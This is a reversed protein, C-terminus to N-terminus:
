YNFTVLLQAGRGSLPNIQDTSSNPFPTIGMQGGEDNWFANVFFQWRDYSRGWRIFRSTSKSDWERTLILSFQDFLGYSYNALVASIPVTEDYEFFKKGLSIWMHEGILQVGSSIPLTYDAGITIFQQRVIALSDIGLPLSSPLDFSQRIFATELWFGAIYDIRLDAGFKHEGDEPAQSEVFARLIEKSISAPVQGSQWLTEVLDIKRFHYAVGLEAAQNLPYQLRGGIEPSDSQGFFFDWGKTDDNGILGWFWLNANNLFYYRLLAGYVGETIQLPDRPDVRDFWRLPRLLSSSGFNIKQLGIRAEFQSSNYRLWFRYLDAEANDNLKDLSDFETGTFMNFALEVDVSNNGLPQNLSFEPIYRLLWIDSNTNESYQALGSLQGRHSFSTQSYITTNTSVVLLGTLIYLYGSKFFPLLFHRFLRCM